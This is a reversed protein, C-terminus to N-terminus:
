LAATGITLVKVTADAVPRTRGLWLMLKADGPAWVTPVGAVKDAVESEPRATANAEVVGETHVTLPLVSVGNAAPLQM